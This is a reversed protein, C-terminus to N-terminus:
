TDGGDLKFHRLLAKVARETGETSKAITAVHGKIVALEADITNLRAAVIQYEMELITLRESESSM